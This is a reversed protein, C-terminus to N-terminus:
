DHAATDGDASGASGALDLVRRGFETLDTGKVVRVLVTAAAPVLDEIETSGALRIAESVAVSTAPDGTELLVARDGAPRV